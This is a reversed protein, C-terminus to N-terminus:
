LCPPNLDRRQRASVGRERADRFVEEALKRLEVEARTMGGSVHRRFVVSMGRESRKKGQALEAIFEKGAPGRALEGYVRIRDFASQVM